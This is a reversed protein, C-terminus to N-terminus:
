DFDGRHLDGIDAREQHMGARRLRLSPCGVRGPRLLRRRADGVGGEAAHAVPQEDLDVGVLADGADALAGAPRPHDLGGDLVELGHEDALVRGMDLLEPLLHLGGDHAVAHEARDAAAGHGADVHRQPVDLALREARRHPVQEAALDAVAHADIAVGVRGLHRQRQLLAADRRQFAAADAIRHALDGRDAVRDASVHVHHDVQVARGPHRRGVGGTEGARQLGVFKGPDLIRDRRLVEVAIRRMRSAAWTGSAAPSRMAVIKPSRSSISRSRTSMMWGSVPLAPPMVWIFFIAAMASACWMMNAGCEPESPGTASYAASCRIAAIGLAMMRSRM